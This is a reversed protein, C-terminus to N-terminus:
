QGRLAGPPIGHRRALDELANIEKQVEDVRRVLIEIGVEPTIAFDAEELHIGGTTKRLSRVDDLAQEYECLRTKRRELEDNLQAAQTAYWEPDEAKVYAGPAPAAKPKEEDNRGVISILGLGRLKELDDNTWVMAHHSNAEARPRNAARLPIVGVVLGLTVACYFYRAM